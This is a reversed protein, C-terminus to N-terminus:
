GKKQSLSKAGGVIESIEQTIAAQRARNYELSLQTILNRASTTSADMAAMRANNEACYAATLVGYMLGGAVNPGITDIVAHPSPEFRATMYREDPLDGEMIYVEDLRGSLYHDTITDAIEKAKEFTPNQVAYLFEVDVNAGIREFYVRGATGVAFIGANKHKSIEAEAFKVINHNYSGCMGKDGSVVIYGYKKQSEPKDCGNDFYPHSFNDTHKLVHHVTTQINDFYPQMAEWNARAKKMKSSSILYMANTIKLIDQIGSIREKIENMNAM